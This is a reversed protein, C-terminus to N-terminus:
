VEDEVKVCIDRGCGVYGAARGRIQWWFLMMLMGLHGM